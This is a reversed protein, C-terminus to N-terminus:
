DEATTVDEQPMQLQFLNSVATVTGLLVPSACPISLCSLGSNGEYM